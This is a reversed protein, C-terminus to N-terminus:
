SLIQNLEKTEFLELVIDCGGILEQNVYLQPFTPWNAVTPLVARINPNELINCYDFKTNLHQLVNAVKASFGCMPFDPTGKMFLFVRHNQILQNIQNTTQQIEQNSLQQTRQM